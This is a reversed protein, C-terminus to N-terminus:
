PKLEKIFPSLIRTGGSRPPVGTQASQTGVIRRRLAGRVANGRLAHSRPASLNPSVARPDLDSPESHPDGSGCRAVSSCKEMRRTPTPPSSIPVRSSPNRAAVAPSRRDATARIRVHVSRGFPLLAAAKAGSKIEHQLSHEPCQM